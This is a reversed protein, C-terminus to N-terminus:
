TTNSTVTVFRVPLTLFKRLDSLRGAPSIAIKWNLNQPGSSYQLWKTHFSVPFYTFQNTLNAARPPKCKEYLIYRDIQRDREKEICRGICLYIYTNLKSGTGYHIEARVSQM